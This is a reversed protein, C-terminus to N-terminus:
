RKKVQLDQCDPSPSELPCNPSYVYIAVTVCPYSVKFFVTLPYCRLVHFCDSSCYMNSLNFVNPLVRSIVSSLFYMQFGLSSQICFYICRFVNSYVQISNSKPFCKSGNPYMCSYFWICESVNPYVQISNPRQVCKSVNPYVQICRFM